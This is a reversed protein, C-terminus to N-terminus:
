PGIITPASWHKSKKVLQNREVGSIPMRLVLTTSIYQSKLGCCRWHPMSNLYTSTLFSLDARYGFSFGFPGLTNWWSLLVCVRPLYEGWLPIDGCCCYWNPKNAQKVMFSYCVWWDQITGHHVEEYNTYNRFAWGIRCENHEKRDGGKLGFM